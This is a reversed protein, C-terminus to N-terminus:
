DWFRRKKRKEEKADDEKVPKECTEASDPTTRKIYNEYLYFFGRPSKIGARKLLENSVYKHLTKGDRVGTYPVNCEGICAITIDREDPETRDSLKSLDIRIVANWLGYNTRRNSAADANFPRLIDDTTGSKAFNSLPEEVLLANFDYASDTLFAATSDVPYPIDYGSLGDALNAVLRKHMGLWTPRINNVDAFPHYRKVTDCDRLSIGTGNINISDLFLSPHKDPDEILDNNYLMNFLHAQQYLTMELTGLAVSYLSDSVAIRRGYATMTDVNIGVIRALEKYIRVGTVSKLKLKKQIRELANIRYFFQVFPFADQQISGGVGFLKKNLRYIAEVGFINNSTALLDFIYNCGEFVYDHNHMQYGRGKVASHAFVVEYPRDNKRVVSRKWPVDAVVELSDNFKAYAPFVGLDFNLANLIPKATSSGNPIPNGLLGALRSGIRDRSYYALLKGTRSDIICYAYYQGDVKMATRTYYYCSRRWVGGKRNQYRINAILTDGCRLTTSYDSGAESFGAATDIVSILRLTDRPKGQRHIDEGSSGIRVDTRIVTDPGFGRSSVLQELHRQLPLDLTLKICLNGKRRILSNPNILDMDSGYGMEAKKDKYLYYLWFENALDVLHGSETQIQDFKTFRLTDIAALVAQQRQKPWKLAAGMRPMDIRSQRAIKSHINRGWKVMRAIYVCEADSLQNLEKKFFGRAIDRVGILGYDSAICHNLYVELIEDPTYMKRLASSIRLERSKRDVSRSVHRLGAEDLRSILLKAVQQTITSTGRPSVKSFSVASRILAQIFARVFSDFEFGLKNEYFREDEAAILAKILVPPFEKIKARTHNTRIRALLRDKRDIIDITNSYSRVENLRAIISLSPYDKVSIGDVILITDSGKASDRIIGEVEKDMAHEALVDQWAAGFERSLLGRKEFEVLRGGWKEFYGNFLSRSVLFAPYLLAAFLGTIILLIIVIKNKFFTKLNL